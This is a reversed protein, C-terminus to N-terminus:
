GLCLLQLTDTWTPAMELRRLDCPTVVVDCGRGGLKAAGGEVGGSLAWAGTSPQEAGLVERSWSIGCNCVHTEAFARTLESCEVIGLRCTVESVGLEVFCM